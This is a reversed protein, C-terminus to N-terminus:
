MLSILADNIASETMLILWALGTLVSGAGLQLRTRRGAGRRLALIWAAVVLLLAAGAVYYGAAAIKGFVALWSGGLGAMMLLMPLVCCGAVGFAALGGVIGARGARAAQSQRQM